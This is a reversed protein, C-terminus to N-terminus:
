ENTTGGNKAEEPIDAGPGADPDIQNITKEKDEM